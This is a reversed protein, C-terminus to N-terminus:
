AAPPRMRTTSTRGTRRRVVPIYPATHALFLHRGALSRNNDRTEQDNNLYRRVTGAATLDLRGKAGPSGFSYGLQARNSSWLDPHKYIFTPRRSSAQTAAAPATTWHLFEYDARLRHRSGFEWNANANVAQDVYNYDPTEFVTGIRALYSLNYADPGKLANLRLSPALVNIGPRWTRSLATM